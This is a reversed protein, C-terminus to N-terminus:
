AYEDLKDKIRKEINIIRLEQREEEHLENYINVLTEKFNKFYNELAPLKRTVFLIKRNFRDEEEKSDAVLQKILDIYGDPIGISNNHLELNDDL